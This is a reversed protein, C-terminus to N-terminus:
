VIIGRVKLLPEALARERLAPGPGPRLPAGTLLRWAVGASMGCASPRGALEGEELSWGVATRTLMWGGIGPIEIAIATGAPAPVRYQQPFGWVFTRLVLPLEDQPEDHGDPRAAERIQRFHVWRETFERALDFWLPAQRAWYVSSPRGLDVQALYADLHEGSWGLLGIILPPSLSRAGEM